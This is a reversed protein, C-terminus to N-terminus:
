ASIICGLCSMGPHDARRGPDATTPTIFSPLARFTQSRGPDDWASRGQCILSHERSTKASAHAARANTRGACGGAATARQLATLVGATLMVLRSLFAFAAFFLALLELATVLRKLGVAVPLSSRRRGKRWCMRVLFCGSRLCFSREHTALPAGRVPEWPRGGGGGGGVGVGVGM